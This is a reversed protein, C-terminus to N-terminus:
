ISEERKTVTKVFSRLMSDGRDNLRAAGHAVRFHDRGSILMAQRHDEGAYSMELM